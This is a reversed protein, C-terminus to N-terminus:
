RTGPVVQVPLVGPLVQKTYLTLVNVPTIKKTWCIKNVIRDAFYFFLCWICSSASFHLICDITRLYITYWILVIFWIPIIHTQSFPVCAVRFQFINKGSENIFSATLHYWRTSTFNDNKSAVTSWKSQNKQAVTTNISLNNRGWGLTLVISEACFQHLNAM